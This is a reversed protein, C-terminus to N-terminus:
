VYIDLNKTFKARLTPSKWRINCFITTATVFITVTVSWKIIDLIASGCITTDISMYLKALLLYKIFFWYLLIKALVSFFRLPSWAFINTIHIHLKGWCCTHKHIPRENSYLPYKIISFYSSKILDINYSGILVKSKNAKQQLCFSM